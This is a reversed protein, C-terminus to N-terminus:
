QWKCTVNREIFFLCMRVQALLVANYTESEPKPFAPSTRMLSLLEQGESWKGQQLLARMWLACLAADLSGGHRMYQAVLAEAIHCHECGLDPVICGDKPASGSAVCAFMATAYHRETPACVGDRLMENIVQMNFVM